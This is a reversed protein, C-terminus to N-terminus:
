PAVRAAAILEGGTPLSTAVRLFDARRADLRRRVDDDFLSYAISERLSERDSLDCITMTSDYPNGERLRKVVRSFGLPWVQYPAFTGLRQIWDYDNTREFCDGANPLRCDSVALLVPVELMMARTITRASYNLSLLLDASALLVDFEEIKQADLWLYRREDILGAFAQPGAHVVKIDPSISLCEQIALVPIQAAMSRVINSEFEVHQWPASCFLVLKQSESLDLATRLHRITRSSPRNKPPLSNFRLCDNTTWTFPVPALLTMNDLPWRSLHKPEKDILDICADGTSFGWTDIAFLSAGINSFESWELSRKEFLGNHAFLDCICVSADRGSGVFERIYEPLMPLFSEPFVEHSVGSGRFVAASAPSILCHAVEGKRTLEQAITLGQAAEGVGLSGLCVFVTKQNNM